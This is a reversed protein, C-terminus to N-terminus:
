ISYCGSGGAVDLLKRVGRFQQCHAMGLASPFSHSHFRQNSLRADEATMEGHEWRRTVRDGEGKNDTRLSRLLVETTTHGFGASRLMPIWYFESDRLLYVRATHTLQFRE